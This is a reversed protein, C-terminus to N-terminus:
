AAAAPHETRAPRPRGAPSLLLGVSTFLMAVLTVHYAIDGPRGSRVTVTFGYLTLLTTLVASAV